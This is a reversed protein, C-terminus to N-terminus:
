NNKSWQFRSYNFRFSSFTCFASYLWVSHYKILSNITFHYILSHTIRFRIVNWLKRGYDNLSHSHSRSRHVFSCVCTHQTYTTSRSRHASSRSHSFTCWVFVFFSFRFVVSCLKVCLYPEKSGYKKLANALCPMAHCRCWRVLGFYFENFIDGCRCYTISLINPIAWRCSTDGEYTGIPVTLGRRKCLASNKGNEKASKNVKLEFDIWNVLISLQMVSANATKRNKDLSVHRIFECLHSCTPLYNFIHMTKLRGFWKWSVRLHGNERQAITKWFAICHLVANSAWRAVITTCPLAKFIVLFDCFLWRQFQIYLECACLSM